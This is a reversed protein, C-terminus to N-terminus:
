AFLLVHLTLAARALGLLAAVAITAARAWPMASIREMLSLPGSLREQRLVKDGALRNMVKQSFDPSLTIQRRARRWDHYIDEGSM